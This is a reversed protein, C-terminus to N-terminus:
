FGLHAFETSKRTGFMELFELAKDLANALDSPTYEGTACIEMARSIAVFRNVPGDHGHLLEFEAFYEIDELKDFDYKM